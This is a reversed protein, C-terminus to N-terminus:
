SVYRSIAKIFKDADFSGGLVNQKWTSIIDPNQCDILAQSPDEYKYLDIPYKWLDMLEPHDIKRNISFNPHFPESEMYSITPKGLAIALYMFTGKAFIIDNKNIIDIANKITLNSFKYNIGPIGPIGSVELSEHLYVTINYTDMISSLYGQIDLNGKKFDDDIVSMTAHTTAFLINNGTTPKLPLVKPLYPFGIVEVPQPYKLFKLIDKVTNSAVFNCTIKKWPQLGYDYCKWSDISHPYMFIPRDYDKIKNKWIGYDAHTLVFNSHAMSNSELFNNDILTKRIVSEKNQRELIRFWRHIAM